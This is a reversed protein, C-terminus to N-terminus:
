EYVVRGYDFEVNKLASTLQMELNKNTDNLRKIELDYLNLKSSNEDHEKQYNLLQDHV